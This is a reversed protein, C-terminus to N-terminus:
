NMQERTKSMLKEHAEAYALQTQRVLENAISAEKVARFHKEMAEAYLFALHRIDDNM